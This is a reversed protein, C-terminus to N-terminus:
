RCWNYWIKTLIMTKKLIM